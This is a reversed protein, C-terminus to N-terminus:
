KGDGTTDTNGQKKVLVDDMRAQKAVGGEDEESLPRKKSEALLIKGTGKGDANVSSLSSSEAVNETLISEKIADHTPGSTAVDGEKASGASPAVRKAMNAALRKKKELLKERFSLEKQTKGKTPVPTTPTAAAELSLIDPKLQKTETGMISSSPVMTTKEVSGALTSVAVDKSISSDTNEVTAVVTSTELAVDDTGNKMTDKAPAVVPAVLLDSVEKPDTKSEVISKKSSSADVSTEMKAPILSTSENKSAAFRLGGPPIEPVKQEVAAQPQGSVGTVIPTPTTSVTATSSVPAKSKSALTSSAAIAVPPTASTSGKHMSAAPTTASEVSPLRKQTKGVLAAHKEKLVAEQKKIDEKQVRIEEQDKALVQQHQKKMDAAMKKHRRLMTTLNNVRGKTSELDTKLSAIESEKSTVLTKLEDREKITSLEVDSKSKSLAEKEANAKTELHLRSLDAKANECEKEAQDKLTQITKCEKKLVDIRSLAEEHEKPDIPHFEAVLSQVRGKWAEMERTLSSKEAELAAKEGGFGRNKSEAAELANKVIELEHKAKTLEAGIRDSEERLLTNSERLLTLQEGTQRRDEKEKEKQTKEETITARTGESEKRTVAASKQLTSVEARAEELSRKTIASSAREREVTRELADIQAQLMDHESRMFRVVERLESITKQYSAAVHEKTQTTTPANKADSSAGPALSVKDATQITRKELTDSLTAMQSHLIANQSKAEELRKSVEEM